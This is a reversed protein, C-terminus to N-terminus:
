ETKGDKIKNFTLSYVSGDKLEIDFRNTVQNVVQSPYKRVRAINKFLIVKSIFVSTFANVAGAVKYFNM